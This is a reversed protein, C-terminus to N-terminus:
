CTVMAWVRMSVRAWPGLRSCNPIAMARATAGRGTVSSSSRGRTVTPPRTATQLPGEANRLWKRVEGLLEGAFRRRRLSGFRGREGPGSLLRVRMRTVVRLSVGLGLGM